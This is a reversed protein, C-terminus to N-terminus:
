TKKKLITFVTMACKYTNRPYFTCTHIFEKIKKFFFIAFSNRASTPIVHTFSVLTISFLRFIYRFPPPHPLTTQHWKEIIKLWFTLWFDICFGVDFHFYNCFARLISGFDIGFRMLFCHWFQYRFLDLFDDCIMNRKFTFDNFNMQFVNTKSSKSPQMHSRYRYWFFMLFPVLIWECILSFDICFVYEFFSLWFIFFWCFLSGFILGFDM